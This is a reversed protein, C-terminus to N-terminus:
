GLFWHQSCLLLFSSDLLVGMVPNLHIQSANPSVMVSRSVPDADEEPMGCFGDRLNKTGVSSGKRPTVYHLLLVVALARWHM